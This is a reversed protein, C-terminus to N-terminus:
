PFEGPTARLHLGIRIGRNCTIQVLLMSGELLGSSFTGTHEKVGPTLTKTHIFLRVSVTLSIGPALLINATELLAQMNPRQHEAARARCKGKVRQYQKATSSGPLPHCSGGRPWKIVTAYRPSHEDDAARTGGAAAYFLTQKAAAAMACNDHTCSVRDGPKLWTAYQRVQARECCRRLGLLASSVRRTPLM